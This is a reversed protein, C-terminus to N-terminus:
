KFLDPYNTKMYQEFIGQQQYEWSRKFAYDLGHCAGAAYFLFCVFMVGLIKFVWQFVSDGNM